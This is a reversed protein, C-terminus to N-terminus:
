GNATIVSCEFVIQLNFEKSDKSLFIKDNDALILENFINIVHVHYRTNKATWLLEIPSRTM